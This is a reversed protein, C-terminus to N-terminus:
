HEPSLYSSVTAYRGNLDEHIKFSSNKRFESRIKYLYKKANIWYKNLDLNTQFPLM